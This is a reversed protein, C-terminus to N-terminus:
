GRIVAADPHGSGGPECYGEHSAPLSCDPLHRGFTEGEPRMAHDPMLCLACQALDENPGQPGRHPGRPCADPNSAYEGWSHTRIIERARADIKAQMDEDPAGFIREFDDGSSM